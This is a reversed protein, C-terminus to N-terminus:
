AEKQCTSTQQQGVQRDKRCTKNKIGIKWTLAPTPQTQTTTASKYPPPYVCAYAYVHVYTYANMCLHVYTYANMGVHICVCKFVYMRVCACMCACVCMCTCIYMCVYDSAEIVLTQLLLPFRLLSQLSRSPSSHPVRRCYTNHTHTHARAHTDCMYLCM